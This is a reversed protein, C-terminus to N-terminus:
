FSNFRQSEDLEAVGISNFQRRTKFKLIRSFIFAFSKKTNQKVKTSNDDM